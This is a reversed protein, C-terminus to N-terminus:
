IQSIAYKEKALLYYSLIWPLFYVVQYWNYSTHYWNHYFEKFFITSVMKEKPYSSEKKFNSLLNLNFKKKSKILIHSFSVYSGRKSYLQYM